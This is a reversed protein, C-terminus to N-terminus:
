RTDGPNEALLHDIRDIRGRWLEEIEDLLRQAAVLADVRTRVLSERGKRTRVVLGAETLVGVHKQVAPLSMPYARALASVSQTGDMARRLIDRRTRDALAHFIRDVEEDSLLTEQDVVMQNHISGSWGPGRLRSPGVAFRVAHGVVM